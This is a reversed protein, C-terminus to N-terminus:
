GIYANRDTGSFRCFRSLRVEEKALRQKKREIRREIKQREAWGAGDDTIVRSLYGEDEEADSAEEGEAAAKGDDEDDEDDPYLIASEKKAFPLGARALMVRLSDGAKTITGTTSNLDRLLADATLM